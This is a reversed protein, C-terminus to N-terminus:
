DLHIHGARCSSAQRRGTNSPPSGGRMVFFRDGVDFCSAVSGAVDLCYNTPKLASAGPYGHPGQTDLQSHTARGYFM